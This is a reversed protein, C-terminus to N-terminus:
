SLKYVPYDGFINKVTRMQNKILSAYLFDAEFLAFAIPINFGSNFAIIKM